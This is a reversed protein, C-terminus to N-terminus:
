GAHEKLSSVGKDQPLERFRRAQRRNSQQYKYVITITESRHPYAPFFYVDTDSLTHISGTFNSIACRCTKHTGSPTHQTAGAPAQRVCPTGFFREQPKPKRAPLRVRQIRRPTERRRVCTVARTCRSKSWRNARSPSRWGARETRSRTKRVRLIALWERRVLHQWM